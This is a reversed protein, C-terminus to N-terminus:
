GDFVVMVVVSHEIGDDILTIVSGPQVVGDVTVTAAQKEGAPQQKVRIHYNTERFRYHVTFGDWHAPLCPLFSLKDTELKLGLLSEVILRYM